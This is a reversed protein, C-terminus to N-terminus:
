SKDPFIEWGFFHFPPAGALFHFLGSFGDKFTLRCGKNMSKPGLVSGYFLFVENQFVSLFHLVMEFSVLSGKQPSM